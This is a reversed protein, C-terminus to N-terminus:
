KGTNRHSPPPQGPLHNRHFGPPQTHKPYTRFERLYKPTEGYVREFVMFVPSKSQTVFCKDFNPLNEGLRNIPGRRSTLGTM